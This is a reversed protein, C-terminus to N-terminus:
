ISWVLSIMDAACAALTPVWKHPPMVTDEQQGLRVHRARM